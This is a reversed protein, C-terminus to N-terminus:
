FHPTKRDHPRQAQDGRSLVLIEPGAGYSAEGLTAVNGDNDALVTLGTLAGLEAPIDVGQWDPLTETSQVVVGHRNVLGCSGVGLTTDQDTRLQEVLAACASLISERTKPTATSAVVTVGTSDSRRSGLM